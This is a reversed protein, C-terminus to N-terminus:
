LRVGFSHGVLSDRKACRSAKTTSRTKFFRRLAPKLLKHQLRNDQKTLYWELYVLLDVNPLLCEFVLRFDGTCTLPRVVDLPLITQARMRQARTTTGGSM